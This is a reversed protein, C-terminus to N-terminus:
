NQMLKDIVKYIDIKHRVFVKNRVFDYRILSINFNVLAETYAQRSKVLQDLAEKVSVANFRGQRYRYILGKYYAETQGLADKANQVANYTVEITSKGSNIEDRIQRHLKREEIRLKQLNIRANRSDVRASENWLPYEVKFEVGYDPYRNNPVENYASRSHRGYSRSSYNGGLSVSPLLANESLEYSKKANEMKLRIGQFDPRTNYAYKLDEVPNIDNPKVNELRTKGTLNLGPNLNMVRLLERQKNDRDLTALELNTKASSVLANWQNVEFSEALGINRKRITITRINKTNQLLLKSTKLQEDAISLNWYNILADVVISTLQFILNERLIKANNKNISNIRRQNYGFANKLLEQKLGVSVAGQHVPRKPRLSDGGSGVIQDGLNVENANSDIRTDSGEVQFSTGSKFLKSIKAYARGTDSINGENAYTPFKKNITKSYSYGSELVPSYQSEDKILDTDSKLIELQQLSVDDNNELVIKITQAMTLPLPNGSSDLPITKYKNKVTKKENTKEEAAIGFLVGFIIFVM